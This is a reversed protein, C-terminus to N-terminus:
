LERVMASTAAWAVAWFLMAAVADQSNYDARDKQVANDLRILEVATWNQFCFFAADHTLRHGAVCMARARLADYEQRQAFPQDLAKMPGLLFGSQYLADLFDQFRIFPCPMPLANGIVREFEEIPEEAVLEWGRLRNALAWVALRLM